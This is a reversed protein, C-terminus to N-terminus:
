SSIRIKDGLLQLFEPTYFKMMGASSTFTMEGFYLRGDLDYFDIRVEPFGESLITAAEIMESLSQPKKIVGLGTKYHGNSVVFEPHYNWDLDYIDLFVSYKTRNYACNVYYPKGDFCWVKYDIHSASVKKEADTVELFIEAIIMPPIGRYHLEGNDGFHNKLRENMKKCIAERNFDPSSKDVIIVSGFDHNCKLVFKDPLKDFDIKEADTWVGLMPVLLHELGKEKVYERVKYKDALRTWESIDNNVLLWQIKENLDRPHKWDIAYGMRRKWRRAIFAQPAVNLLISNSIHKIKFYLKRAQKRCYFSWLPAIGLPMVYHMDLLYCHIRFGNTHIIYHLPAKVYQRLSRYTAVSETKSYSYYELIGLFASNFLPFVDAMDIRYKDVFACMEKIITKWHDIYEQKTGLGMISGERLKHIYVTRSVIYLTKALCAIQFSWLNDEYFLGEKFKLGYHRLFDSKYLRNWAVVAWKKKYTSLIQPQKLLVDEAINLEQPGNTEIICHPSLVQQYKVFGLVVDYREGMLPRVLSEICDETLEDDSDLFYIYDGRAEDMGTNRAASLGRNCSHRLIKFIIDGQYDKIMEEVQSMSHDTGCDDVVLCEMKGDYTQRMVSEICAKVYPEVQFVPVIISVFPKNM